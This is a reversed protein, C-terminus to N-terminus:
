CYFTAEGFMDMWQAIIIDSTAAIIEMIERLTHAPIKSHNNELICSGSQTIWIKTGNAQPKGEAVHVHVPELPLGEKAWFYICYGGIRFIQPMNLDVEVLM